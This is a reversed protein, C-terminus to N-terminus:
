AKKLRKLNNLSVWSNFSDPYGLWKVLAKTKNKKLVKEILYEKEPKVRIKILEEDYFIGEITSGSLDQLKYAVPNQNRLVQEVIFHERTYGALYGKSFARRAKSIRVQDGVGFKSRKKIAGGTGYLRKRVEDTNLVDVEAPAMGIARHYSRNYSNVITEIVDVWRHTNNQTFYRHLRSLLTRHFREVIAAKTESRTSFRHIKFKDLGRFENGQDSHLVLPRPARKLIKEFAKATDSATKTKIGEVYAFRSFCDICTLIYRLNNNFKKYKQMDLLDIEFQIGPGDVYIRRRPYKWRVPAHLTYTDQSELFLKVRKRTVNPLKQKAAKYLREVGGLSGVNKPSYYIERLM